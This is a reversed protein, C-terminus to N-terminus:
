TQLVHLLHPEFSYAKPHPPKDCPSHLAQKLVQPSVRYREPQPPTLRPVQAEQASHPPPYLKPSQVPTPNDSECVHVAHAAPFYPPPPNELLQVSQPTPFNLGFVPERVSADQWCHGDPFYLGSVPEPDKFLQWFQTAPFNLTLEPLILSLLQVFHVTPVYLLM